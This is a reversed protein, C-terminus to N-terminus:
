FNDSQLKNYHKKEMHLMIKIIFMLFLLLKPIIWIFYLEYFNESKVGMYTNYYIKDNKLIFNIEGHEFTSFLKSKVKNYRNIVDISPIGYNNKGYSMVAIKPICSSVFEESSSTKSGHHPVVLIDVPTLDQVIMTEAFEEIDGPILISNGNFSILIVLSTNNIDDYTFTKEPWLIELNLSDKINSYTNKNIISIDCDINEKYRSSFVKKVNINSSNIIDNIASYHDTDWHSIFIGDVRNIGKKILYPVATYKGLNKNSTSGCDFILNIDKYSLISFMGQGVDVINFYAANDTLPIIVYTLSYFVILIRFGLAKFNFNKDYYLYLILTIFTYFFIIEYVSPTPITIGNFVFGETYDIFCRLIYLSFDFIKFPIVFFYWCIYNFILLIFGFILLYTFVPILLINYLIGMIPIYNFYYAMIPLMFLNLFIYIKFTVAFKNKNNSNKLIFKSYLILSLSASFSLIFGADYIWFPNIVTLILAALSISNLSSYRRYLVESGFLFTFMVLSRAVSLPLGILFGYIWIVTWTIIWSYKRKLGTLMFLKILVGYMLVIHSGSVAFIHALGMAKINDYFGDDLYDVDGLIIALIIDANKDDLKSKFLQETYGVFSNSIKNYLSYNKQQTKPNDTCFIVAYVKKSRLYQKYNFLLNNKGFALDTVKGNLKVITNAEPKIDDAVYIITNEKLNLAKGNICTVAANYSYFRSNNNSPKNMSKLEATIEIEENIYQTLVSKSNYYCNVFSLILFVIIVINYIFKKTKITNYLLLAFVTIFFYYFINYEYSIIGLVYVLLVSIFIYM